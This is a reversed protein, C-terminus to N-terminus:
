FEAEKKYIPGKPTLESSYLTIKNVKVKKNPKFQLDPDRLPKKARAITIHPIFEYKEQPLSLRKEIEKVIDSFGNDELGLWIVRAYSKRPFYGIDTTEAEFPEFDMGKMRSVVKQKDFNGLFKLTIHLNEKSVKKLGPFGLNKKFDEIDEKLDRPIDVALFCRM